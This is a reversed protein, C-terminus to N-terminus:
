RNVEVTYAVTRVENQHKFQLFLRYRGASPFTSQFAIENPAAAGEEPHTHLYALDSERLAVLHGDAGLYPELAAVPRGDRSVEFHLESAEGAQLAPSILAVEYDEDVSSTDPGPLARPEFRGPVSLDTALTQKTGDVQFDAFVRYVGPQDLELPTSWTGDARIRPHLHQYGTMDRRVVILHIEREHEEEFERVPAGAEDLIRFSYSRERGRALERRDSELTYGGSSVALGPPEASVPEAEHGGPAESASHGGDGEAAGADRSELGREPPDLAGGALAAGGSVGLLLVVFAAIRVAASM